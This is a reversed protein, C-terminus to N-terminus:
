PSVCKPTYGFPEGALVTALENFCAEGSKSDHAGRALTFPERPLDIATTTM